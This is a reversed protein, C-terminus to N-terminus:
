GSWFGLIDLRTSVTAASALLPIEELVAENTRTESRWVHCRRLVASDPNVPSSNFLFAESGESLTQEAAKMKSGVDPM